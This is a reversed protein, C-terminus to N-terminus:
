RGLVFIVNSILIKLTTYVNESEVNKNLIRKNNNKLCFRTIYGKDLRSKYFDQKLRGYTAIVSHAIMGPKKGIIRSQFPAKPKVTLIM